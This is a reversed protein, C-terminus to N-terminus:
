AAEEIYIETQGDTEWYGTQEWSKVSYHEDDGIREQYTQEEIRPM